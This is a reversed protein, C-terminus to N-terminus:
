SATRSPRASLSYLMRYRRVGELNSTFEAMGVGHSDMNSM